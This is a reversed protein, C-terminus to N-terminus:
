INNWREQKWQVTSEDMKNVVVVIKSIGLSRALQIHERTQGDQDFGAEFSSFCISVFTFNDPSDVFMPVM